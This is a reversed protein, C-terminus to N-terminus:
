TATKGKQYKTENKNKATRKKKVASKVTAFYGKMANAERIAYNTTTALINAMRPM